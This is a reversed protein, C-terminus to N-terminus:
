ATILSMIRTLANFRFTSGFIISDSNCLIILFEIRIICHSVIKVINFNAEYYVILSHEYNM